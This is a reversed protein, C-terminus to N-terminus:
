ELGLKKLTAYAKQAEESGRILEGLIRITRKRKFLLCAVGRATWALPILFVHRALRPYLIRLEDRNIFIKHWLARFHAKKESDTSEYERRILNVAPGRGHFGFTGGELIYDMVKRYDTETMEAIPVTDPVNFCRKCLAFIHLAFVDLGIKKLESFVSDFDLRGCDHDLIVAIDALMRVGCGYNYLHKAIHSILYILQYNEELEYTFGGGVASAHEWMRDFYGMRGSGTRIHKDNVKYHVEMLLDDKVYHRDDGGKSKLICGIEKLAADAKCQDEHYIMLDIDGLTRMEAVSYYKRLVAGKIFIHPIEMESLKTATEEILANQRESRMLTNYFASTFRKLIEKPPRQEGPLKQISLYVAGSLFHIRSLEFVQNWDVNDPASPKEGKLFAALLQLFYTGNKDM